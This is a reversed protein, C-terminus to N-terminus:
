RSFSADAFTSYCGLKGQTKGLLIVNANQINVNTAGTDRRHESHYPLFDM